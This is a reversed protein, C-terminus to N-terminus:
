YKLVVMRNMVWAGLLLSVAGFAILYRGEPTTYLPEMYGPNLFSNVLFLIFPLALLIRKSLQTQAMLIRAHRSLRLRDRIVAALRDMMDALNGGSELQIIVSTAFLKLDPSTRLQAARRLSEDLSLGLDQQQCVEKFITGVPAPIEEGALQFAGTLPHGARLSRAALDLADVFQTEFLALGRQAQQNAYTKLFIMAVAVAGAGALLSATLVYTVLFAGATIGIAGLILTGLPTAVRAQQRWRELRERLGLDGSPDQVLTTLEQGQSWLRLERAPGADPDPLGLRASVRRARSASRLWWSWVIACWLLFVFLFASVRAVVERPDGLEALRDSFNM